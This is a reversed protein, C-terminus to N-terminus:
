DLRFRYKYKILTRVPKGSKVGPSFLFQQLATVAAADLAESLGKFISVDEVLGKEDIVVQLIVDGEVKSRRAEVPYTAKIEKLVKPLVNLDSSDTLNKEATSLDTSSAQNQNQPAPEPAEAVAPASSNASPIKPSYSHKPSKVISPAPFFEAEIIEPSNLNSKEFTLFFFFGLHLAISILLFSALKM